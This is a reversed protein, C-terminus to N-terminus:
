ESRRDPDTRDLAQEVLELVLQQFEEQSSPLWSPCSSGKPGRKRKAPENVTGQEQAKLLLAKKEEDNPLNIERVDTIELLYDASVNFFLALRKLRDPTPNRAGSEYRTYAERSLGAADAVQQQSLQRELRLNKIVDKFM